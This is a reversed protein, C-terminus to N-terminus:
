FFANVNTPNFSSARALSTAEPIRLSLTPHRKLLATFWDSGAMEMGTWKAPMSTGNAKSHQYALKRIEKPCLGQYVDSAKLIYEALLNEMDESFVMRNKIYGVVTTTPTPNNGEIEEKTM